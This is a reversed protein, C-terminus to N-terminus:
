AAGVTEVSVTSFRRSCPVSFARWNDTWADETDCPSTYSQFLLAIVIKLM